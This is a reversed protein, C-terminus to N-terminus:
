LNNVSYQLNWHKHLCVNEQWQPVDCEMLVLRRHSTTTRRWFEENCKRTLPLLEFFRLPTALIQGQHQYWANSKSIDPVVDYAQQYTGLFIHVYKRVYM